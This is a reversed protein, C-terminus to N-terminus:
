KLEEQVTKLGGFRRIEVTEIIEIGGEDKQVPETTYVAVIDGKKILGVVKKLPFNKYLGIQEISKVSTNLPGYDLNNVTLLTQSYGIRFTRFNQKNDELIILRIQEDRSSKIPKFEDFIGMIRRTTKQETKKQQEGMKDIWGDVIRNRSTLINRGTEDGNSSISVMLAVYGFKRAKSKVLPQTHKIVNELTNKGSTKVYSNFFPINIIKFFNLLYFISLVFFTGIIISAPFFLFFKKFNNKVPLRETLNQIEM